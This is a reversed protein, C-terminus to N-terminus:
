LDNESEPAPAGDTRCTHHKIEVKVHKRLVPLRKITCTTHTYNVSHTNCVPVLDHVTVRIANTLPCIFSHM